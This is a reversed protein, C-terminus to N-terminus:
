ELLTARLQEIAEGPVALEDRVYAAVSGHRAEIADLSALLYEPHAGMVVDLAAQPMALLPDANAALGAGAARRNLIQARLDAAHNTLAYDEVIIDRPVGLMALVLGIAVGTRDKGAM